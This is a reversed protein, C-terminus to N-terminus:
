NELESAKQPTRQGYVCVCVKRLHQLRNELFKSRHFEGTCQKSIERELVRLTLESGM